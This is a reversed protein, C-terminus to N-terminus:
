AAALREGPVTGQWARSVLTPADAPNTSSVWTAEIGEACRAQVWADGDADVVVLRVAPSLRELWARSGAISLALVVEIAHEANMLLDSGAADADIALAVCGADDLADLYADRMKDAPGLVLVRLAPLTAKQALEAARPLRIDFATGSDKASVVSIQGGAREVVDRVVALGLGTGQEAGKTTFFPEFVRQRVSESMGEGDDRIRLHVADSVEDVDVTISFMGQGSIADRANAALNLLVLEFQGLDMSVPLISRRREISIQIRTGFLQGLMSQLGAVAEGADFVQEHQADQRAFSLLKRSIASGRRTAAIIGEMFEDHHAPEVDALVNQAYGSIIALIHNFDHAIGSSLRGVVDMKQAHVLADQAQARALMETQLTQNMGSLAASTRRAEDLSARMAYVCRDLVLTIAFYSLSMSPANAAGLWPRPYARATLTLVDVIGGGWMMLVILAYISWLARRGLILGGLVITLVPYTQDLMQRTLGISLYMVALSLLMSGVFIAVAEGVADRRILRLCFWATAWVLIDVALDVVMDRRIPTRVLLLHYAWNAPLSILMFIMLFRLAPTHRRQTAADVGDGLWTMCRQIMKKYQSM